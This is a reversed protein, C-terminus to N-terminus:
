ELRGLEQKDKKEKLDRPERTELRGLMERTEKLVLLAQFLLMPLLSEPIEQIEQFM